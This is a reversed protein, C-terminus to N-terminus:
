RDGGCTLGMYGHRREAARHRVGVVLVLLRSSRGLVVLLLAHMRLLLLAHGELLRLLSIRVVVSLQMRLLLLV